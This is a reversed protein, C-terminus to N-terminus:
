GRSWERIFAHHRRWDHWTKEAWLRVKGPHDATGAIPGIDAITMQFREPPNLQELSSKRVGLDLMVENTEKPSLRSELQIMLRTLHLGVSQIAQRSGDGPHQVAYTDVTLRHVELLAPDSYEHALVDGYLAWCAPSSTMYAHTPGDSHSLVAGCGPCICTCSDREDRTM